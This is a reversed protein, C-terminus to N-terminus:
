ALKYHPKNSEMRGEHRNEEFLSRQIALSTMTSTRRQRRTSVELRTMAGLDTGYEISLEGSNGPTTKYMYKPARAASAM